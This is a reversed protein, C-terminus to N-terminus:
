LFKAGVKIATIADHYGERHGLLYGGTFLWFAIFIICFVKAADDLDKNTM